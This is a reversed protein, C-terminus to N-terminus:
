YNHLSRHKLLKNIWLHFDKISFFRYQSESQVVRDYSYSDWLVTAIDVGAEKAAKVDAMSDGVMLTEETAINMEDLARHIGEGSPKHQEVDHGTIISTFYNKLGFKELTIETSRRGKGTFLGLTISANYLSDLIEPIGDYLEAKENHHREYYAHFDTVANRFDTEGVLKRIAVEEPPGFMSVIEDSSFRRGLYKDAIHNFTDFILQNTRTLTGDMDFIIGRYSKSSSRQTYVYYFKLPLILYFLCIIYLKNFNM